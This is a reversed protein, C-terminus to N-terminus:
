CLVKRTDAEEEPGTIFSVHEFREDHLAYMLRVGKASVGSPKGEVLPWWLDSKPRGHYFAIVVAHQADIKQQYIDGVRHM